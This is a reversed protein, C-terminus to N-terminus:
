RVLLEGSYILFKNRFANINSYSKVGPDQTMIM